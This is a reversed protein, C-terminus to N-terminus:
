VALAMMESDNVEGNGEYFKNLIDSKVYGGSQKEIRFDVIM